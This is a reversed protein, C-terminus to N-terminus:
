GEDYGYDGGYYDDSSDDYPNYGGYGENEDSESSSKKSESTSQKAKENEGTRESHEQLAEKIGQNSLPGENSIAEELNEAGYKEKVQKNIVDPNKKMTQVAIDKLSSVYNCVIKVEEPSKYKSVYHSIIPFDTIVPSAKSKLLTPELTTTCAYEHKKNFSLYIGVDIGDIKVSPYSIGSIHKISEIGQKKDSWNNYKVNVGEKENMLKLIEEDTMNELPFALHGPDVIVTFDLNNYNFNFLFHHYDYPAINPDEAKLEKIKDRIAKFIDKYTPIGVTNEVEKHINQSSEMGEANMFNASVVCVAALIVGTKLSICKM